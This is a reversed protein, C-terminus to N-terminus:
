RIFFVSYEMTFIGITNDSYHYFYLDNGDKDTLRYNYVPKGPDNDEYDLCYYEWDYSYKEDATTISASHDKNIQFKIEGEYSIFEFTEGSMIFDLKWLGTVLKEAEAAPDQVAPKTEAPTEQKQGGAEMGCRTCVTPMFNHGLPKGETAGCDTCTKPATCTAEQWVHEQDNANSNTQKGAIKEQYIRAVWDSVESPNVTLKEGLEVRKPFYAEFHESAIVKGTDCDILKADITEGDVKFFMYGGGSYEESTTGRTINLIYGVKKPTKALLDRPIYQIIYIDEDEDYGAILNGNASAKNLNQMTSDYTSELLAQPLVRIMALVFMVLIVLGFIKGIKKM